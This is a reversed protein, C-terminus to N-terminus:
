TVRTEILRAVEPEHAAVFDRFDPFPDGGEIGASGGVTAYFRKLPHNAGRLLLYHVAGLLMNAHPQGPQARAALAKLEDDDAIATALRAYLPSGARRADESWFEWYGRPKSSESTEM